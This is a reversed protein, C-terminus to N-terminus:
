VVWSVRLVAQFPTTRVMWSSSLALTKRASKERVVHVSCLPIQVLATYMNVYLKILVKNIVIKVQVASRFLLLSLFIFLSSIPNTSIWVM